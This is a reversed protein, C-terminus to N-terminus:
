GPGVQDTTLDMWHGNEYRARCLLYAYTSNESLVIESLGGGGVGGEPKIKLVNNSVDVFVKASGGAEFKTAESAEMVVWIQHVARFTNPNDELYALADPTNRLATRLEGLPMCFQVLKLHRENIMNWVGEVDAGVPANVVELGAMVDARASRTVDIDVVVAPNLQRGDLDILGQVELYNVGVLPTRKRGFAGLSVASANGRFYGVGHVNLHNRRVIASM